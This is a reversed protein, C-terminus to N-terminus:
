INIMIIFYYFKTVEGIIELGARGIKEGTPTLRQKAMDHEVNLQNDGAIDM